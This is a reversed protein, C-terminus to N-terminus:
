LFFRAGVNARVQFPSDGLSTKKFNLSRLELGVIIALNERFVPVEVGTGFVFGLVGESYNPGQQYKLARNFYGVRASFYLLGPYSHSWQGIPRFRIGAGVDFDGRSIKGGNSDKYNVDTFGGFAYAEFWPTLRRGLELRFPLNIADTSAVEPQQAELTSLTMSVTFRPATSEVEEGPIPSLEADLQSAAFAHSSILTAVVVLGKKFM